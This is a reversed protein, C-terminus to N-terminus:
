CRAAEDERWPTIGEGAAESAAEPSGDPELAPQTNTATNSRFRFDDPDDPQALQTLEEQPQTGDFRGATREADYRAAVAARAEALPGEVVQDFDGAEPGGALYQAARERCARATNRVDPVPDLAADDLLSLAM